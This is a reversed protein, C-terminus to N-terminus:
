VLFYIQNIVKNRILKAYCQLLDKSEHNYLCVVRLLLYNFRLEESLKNEIGNIERKRSAPPLLSKDGHHHGATAPLKKRRSNNKRCPKYNSPQLSYYIKQLAIGIFSITGSGVWGPRIWKTKLSHGRADM